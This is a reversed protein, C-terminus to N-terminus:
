SRSSNMMASQTSTFFNGREVYCSGHHRDEHRNDHQKVASQRVAKCYGACSMDSISRVLGPFLLHDSM